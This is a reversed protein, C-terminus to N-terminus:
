LLVAFATQITIIAVDLTASGHHKNLIGSGLNKWGPDADFYKLM